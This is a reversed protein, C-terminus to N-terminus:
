IEVSEGSTAILFTYEVPAGNECIIFTKEEAKPVEIEFSSWDSSVQAKIPGRTKVNAIGNIAGIVENAKEAEILSPAAGKIVKSITPM